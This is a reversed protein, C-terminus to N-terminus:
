FPGPDLKWAVNEMIKQYFFNDQLTGYVPWIENVPQTEERKSMCFLSTFIYRVLKFNYHM